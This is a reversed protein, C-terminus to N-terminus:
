TRWPTRGALPVAGLKEYQADFLDYAAVPLELEISLVPSLRGCTIVAPGVAGTAGENLRYYLMSGSHCDLTNLRIDKDLFVDRTMTCKNKPSLVREQDLPINRPDQCSTTVTTM